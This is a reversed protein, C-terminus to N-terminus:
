FRKVSGSGMGGFGGMYSPTLYDYVMNGSYQPAGFSASPMTFAQGIPNFMTPSLGSGGGGGGLNMAGGGGGLMGGGFLSSGISSLPNMAMGSQGAGMNFDGGGAFNGLGSGLMGGIATGVGPAIVSGAIGGVLGGISGFIGANSSKRKQDAVYKAQDYNFQNIANQNAVNAENQARNLDEARLYGTSFLYNETQQPSLFDALEVLGPTYAAGQQMLDMTTLGFDRAQLNRAMGSTPPLGTAMAQQAGQRQVQAQVDAPVAGQLLQNVLSSIQTTAGLTGPLGTELQKRFEKNLNTAFSSLAPFQAEQGLFTGFTETLPVNRPAVLKPPPPPSGGGGGRRGM